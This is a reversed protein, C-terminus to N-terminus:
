SWGKKWSGLYNTGDFYMTLISKKNAGLDPAEGTPIKVYSPFSLTRGGTSDQLFVMVYVNGEIGGSIEDFTTNGIITAKYTRNSNFGAFSQSGSINGANHITNNWLTKESDSVFRHTSNQDIENGPINGLGRKADLAIQLGTINAITHGHPDPPFTTPKDIINFWSQIIDMAEMESLKIWTTSTLEYLYFAGGTLVTPDATANKVYVPLNGTPSLANREAITNVIQLTPNFIPIQSAPIKGSGDLSAVGNTAGKQTLPIKADLLIQLNSIDDIVHNHLIPQYAAPKNRIENWLPRNHTIVPRSPFTKDITLGADASSLIDEMKSSLANTFVSLRQTLGDIQDESFVEFFESIRIRSGDLQSTEPIPDQLLNSIRKSLIDIYEFIIQDTNQRVTGENGLGTSLDSIYNALTTYDTDDLIWGSFDRGIPTGNKNSFVLDGFEFLYPVGIVEHEFFIM